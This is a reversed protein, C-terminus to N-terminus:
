VSIGLISLIKKEKANMIAYDRDNEHTYGLLHFCSHVLLLIFHERLTVCFQKADGAIKQYGFAIDGVYITDDNSQMLSNFDVIYQFSLIDTPTDKGRFEKNLQQMKKNDTLLCSIEIEGVKQLEDSDSCVLLLAKHVEQEIIQEWGKRQREHILNL